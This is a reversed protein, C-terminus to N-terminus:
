EAVDSRAIYARIARVERMENVNNGEMCVSCRTVECDWSQAGKHHLRVFRLGACAPCVAGKGQCRDCRGYGGNRGSGRCDICLADEGTRLSDL